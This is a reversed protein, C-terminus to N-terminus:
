QVEVEIVSASPPPAPRTKQRFAHTYYLYMGWAACFAALVALVVIRVLAGSLPKVHEATTKKRVTM